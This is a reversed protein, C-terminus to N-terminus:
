HFSDLQCIIQYEQHWIGKFVLDSFLFSFRLPHFLNLISDLTGIEAIVLSLTGAIPM